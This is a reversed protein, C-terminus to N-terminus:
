DEFAIQPRLHGTQEYLRLEAPSIRIRAQTDSLAELTVPNGRLNAQEWCAYLIFARAPAVFPIWVRASLFYGAGDHFWDFAFPKGKEQALLNFLRVQESVRSEERIWAKQGEPIDPFASVPPAGTRDLRIFISELHQYFWKGNENVFTFCYSTTGGDFTLPLLFHLRNGVHHIEPTVQFQKWDAKQRMSTLFGFNAARLNEYYPRLDAATLKGAKLDAVFQQWVALDAGPASNAQQAPLAVPLVSLLLVLALSRRTRM